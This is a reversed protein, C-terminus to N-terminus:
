PFQARAIISTNKERLIEQKRGRKNRNLLEGLARDNLHATAAVGALQRLKVKTAPKKLLSLGPQRLEKEPM